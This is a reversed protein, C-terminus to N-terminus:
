TKGSFIDRLPMAFCRANTTLIFMNKWLTITIDSIHVYSDIVTIRDSNSSVLNIYVRIRYGTQTFKLLTIRWIYFIIFFRIIFLTYIVLKTKMKYIFLIHFHVCTILTSFTNWIFLNFINNILIYVYIIIWKVPAYENNETCNTNIKWDSYILSYQWEWHDIIM